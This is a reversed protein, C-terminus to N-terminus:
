SGYDPLLLERLKQRARWVRQRVADESLRLEAAIESLRLGEYEHLVFPERIKLPLTALAAEIRSRLLSRELQHDPLDARESTPIQYHSEEFRQPKRKRQLDVSVSRAIRRCWVAFNDGRYQERRAHIRIFTEQFADKALEQDGGCMRVCFTFISSHRRQYIEIFAQEDGGQFRKMLEDDTENAANVEPVNTKKPAAPFSVIEQVIQMPGAIEPYPAASISPPLM